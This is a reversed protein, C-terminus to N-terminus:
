DLDFPYRNSTNFTNVKISGEVGWIKAASVKWIRADDDLLADMFGKLLNDIDPKSQHPTRDMMLRKKGSWSAPMPITFIIDLTDPVLREGWSSRLSDCYSRYRMVCDRQNWKDSRTMRPKAIPVIAIEVM